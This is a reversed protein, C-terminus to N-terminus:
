GTSISFRGSISQGGPIDLNGTLAWLYIIAQITSVCEKSQEIAVGWQMSAPKSNAYLRAAEVIKGEPIWTIEAVKNPPYDQVRMRLEDFGYTWKNV